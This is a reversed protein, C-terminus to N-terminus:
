NFDHRIYDAIYDADTAQVAAILCDQKSFKYDFYKRLLKRARLLAKYADQMASNRGLGEIRRFMPAIIDRNIEYDHMAQLLLGVGNAMQGNELGTAIEEYNKM